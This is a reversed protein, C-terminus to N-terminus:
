HFRLKFILNPTIRLAEQQIFFIENNEQLYYANIINTSNLLNWVSLGIYANVKDDLKFEQGASFDTRFYSPLQASNSPSYLFLNNTLNEQSIPTYAKGSRWKIGLSVQLGNQEYSTNFSLSNAIATNSPFSNQSIENFRYDNNTLSYGAWFNFRKFEKRILFDIGRIYYDGSFPAYQYQDQFGQSSVTINNVKKAYGEISALWNNQTYHLGLSLQMSQMLPIDQNNAGQWKSNQIGLFDKQTSNIQTHYQSKVEGLFEFALNKVVKQNLSFRPEFYFQNLQSFYNLRSGIHLNTKDDLSKFSYTGYVAQTSTFRTTFFGDLPNSQRTFNEIQAYIHEFGLNLDSLHNLNLTNEIKFGHERVKNKQRSIRDEKREENSAELDYLSYYYHVKSIVKENWHHAYNLGFGLSYQSLGSTKPDIQNGQLFDERYSLNNSLYIFSLKFKNKKNPQYLYRLTTDYFHFEDNQKISEQELPDLITNQFAQKYYQNYTPTRFYNNISSRAALRLSSQKGLPTDILGFGYLYNIGAEANFKQNLEDSTQLSIVGSVSNGYSADTGNKILAVEDVFYPNIASILGFFHGYQYMRIGDWLVLNQDPTGGRINLDSVKENISEIGPLVQLAQLADPEILGPFTPLQNLDIDLVGQDKKTISKNLYNQIIVEELDLVKDAELPKKLRIAIFDQSLFEFELNSNREIEAIIQRPSLNSNITFPPLQELENELYSFKFSTQNEFRKIIDLISLSEKTKVQALLLIPFLLLTFFLQVKIKKNM